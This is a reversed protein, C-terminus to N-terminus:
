SFSTQREPVMRGYRLIRIRYSLWTSATKPRFPHASSGITAAEVNCRSLRERGQLCLHELLTNNLQAQPSLDSIRREMDWERTVQGRERRFQNAADDKREEHNFQYVPIQRHEVMAKVADRFKGTM